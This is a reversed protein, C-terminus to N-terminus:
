ADRTGGRPGLLPAAAMYNVDCDPDLRWEDRMLDYVIGSFRPTALGAAKLHRELEEPTVFRNWEHTGRPLWGLVYEAAVIALAYAKWTRNLTSVVLLGGPRVLDALTKLFAGVDPVHEIVELCIVADFREGAARVEEATTARYDITLGQAEAHARAVAITEETPDIGTVAAGLRSLPESVLGGGCGVDLVSLGKLCTLAKATRGFHSLLADRIFALRAPGQRHLPRFKGNPDWWEGALAAFRAVERADLTPGSGGASLPTGEM